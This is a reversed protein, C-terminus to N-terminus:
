NSILTRVYRCAHWNWYKGHMAGSILVNSVNIILQMVAASLRALDQSYIRHVPRPCRHRWSPAAFRQRNEALMTVHQLRLVIDVDAKKVLHPTPLDQPSRADSKTIFPPWYQGDQMRTVKRISASQHMLFIYWWWEGYTCSLFSIFIHMLWGSKHILIYKNLEHIKINIM